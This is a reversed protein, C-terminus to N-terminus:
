VSIPYTSDMVYLSSCQSFVYAYQISNLIVERLFTTLLVTFKTSDTSYLYSFIRLVQIFDFLFTKM